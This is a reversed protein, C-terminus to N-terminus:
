LLDCGTEEEDGGFGPCYRTRVGLFAFRVCERGPGAWSRESRNVTKYWWSAFAMTTVLKSQAAGRLVPRSEPHPASPAPSERWRGQVQSASLEALGAATLDAPVQAPGSVPGAGFPIAGGGSTRGPPNAFTNKRWGAVGQLGSKVPFDPDRLRPRPSGSWVAPPDRNFKSGGEDGYCKVRTEGVLKERHAGVRDAERWAWPMQGLGPFGQGGGTM